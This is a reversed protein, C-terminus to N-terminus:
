DDTTDSYDKSVEPLVALLFLDFSLGLGFDLADVTLLDTVSSTVTGLLPEVGESTLVALLLAVVGLVTGFRTGSLTYLAALAVLGSVEGLIHTYM